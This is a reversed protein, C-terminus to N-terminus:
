YSLRRSVKGGDHSHTIHCFARRVPGGNLWVVLPKEEPAEDAKFFWYFLKGSKEEDVSLMGAWHELPDSLGPLSTVKHQDASRNGSCIITM